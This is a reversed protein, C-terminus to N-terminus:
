GGGMALLLQATDAFRQSQAELLGLRAQLRLREADLV